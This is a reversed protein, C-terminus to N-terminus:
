AGIEPQGDVRLPGTGSVGAVLKGLQAGDILQVGHERALESAPGTFTSTTVFIGREARHHVTIMGIFAQLDRSGVSIGPAHRKCQVVVSRGRADRCKLDASLDGSGGVHVVDRYGLDNLLQGVTMEFQRPTLTLLEAFTKAHFRRRRSYASLIGLIILIFALYFAALAIRSLSSEHTGTVAQVLWLDLAAGVVLLGVIRGSRYRLMWRLSALVSAVLKFPLALVSLASSRRRRRPMKSGGRSSQENKPSCNGFWAFILGHRWRECIGRKARLPLLMPKKGVDTDM